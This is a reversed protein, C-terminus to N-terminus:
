LYVMYGDSTKKVEPDVGSARQVDHGELVEEVVSLIEGPSFNAKVLYGVVGLNKARSKDSEDSLNSVILVPTDKIAEEARVKELFEFGTMGPLVLDLLVLNPKKQRVMSLADDASTAARVEVGRQGLQGVKDVILGHLLSDDEIILVNKGKLDQDAM